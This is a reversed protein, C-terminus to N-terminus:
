GTSKQFRSKKPRINLYPNKKNSSFVTENEFYKSKANKIFGYVDFNSCM